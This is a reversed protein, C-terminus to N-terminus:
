GGQTDQREGRHPYGTVILDVGIQEVDVDRLRHAGAIADSSQGGVAPVAAAGGIIVPAICAAVKDVLNRDFFSGLLESGGEVMMSTIQREGLLCLLAELTM